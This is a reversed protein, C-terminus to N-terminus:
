CGNTGLGVVTAVLMILFTRMQCRQHSILWPVTLHQGAVWTLILGVIAPFASVLSLAYLGYVIHLALPEQADLNLGFRCPARRRRRKSTPCFLRGKQNDRPVHSTGILTDLRAENITLILCHDSPPAEGRLPAIRSIAGNRPRILAQETPWWPLEIHGKNVDSCSKKLWRRATKSSFGVQELQELYWNLPEALATIQAMDIHRQGTVPEAPRSLGESICYAADISLFELVSKLRAVRDLAFDEYAVLM